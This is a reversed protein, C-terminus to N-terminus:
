SDRVGTAGFGGSFDPKLNGEVLSAFVEGIGKRCLNFLLNPHTNYGFRECKEFFWLGDRSAIFNADAFGTFRMKKYAPYLKGVSETVAKCELPIVFAFDFACGVLEGMDMVYKKKSELTMFAFRPDDRLPDM